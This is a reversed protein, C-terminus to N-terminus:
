WLRTNIKRWTWKCGCGTNTVETL